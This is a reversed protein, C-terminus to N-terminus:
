RQLSEMASSPFSQELIRNQLRSSSTFFLNRLFIGTRALSFFCFGHHNLVGIAPTPVQVGAECACWLGSDEVLSVSAPERSAAMGGTGDQGDLSDSSSPQDLHWIGQSPGPLGEEVEMGWERGVCLVQLLCQWSAGPEGLGGTLVVPFILLDSPVETLSPCGQLPGQTSLSLAVRLGCLACGPGAGERSLVAWVASDWILPGDAASVWLAGNRVQRAGHGQYQRTTLAYGTLRCTLM